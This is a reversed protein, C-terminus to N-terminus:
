EPHETGYHHMPLQNTRRFQVLVQIFRFSMLSSGLPVGLYIIWMPWDLDPSTQGTSRMFLVFKVGLLAVVATFFAGLSLGLFTFFRQRSPSLKRVLVDVGVHIGTRVGYAAGFKAMWIFLYITLEQAWPIGAGTTYRLAVAIFTIITALGMFTAILWEELHDLLRSFM